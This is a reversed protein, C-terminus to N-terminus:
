IKISGRGVRSKVFSGSGEAFVNGRGDEICGKTEIWRGKEKVISARCLVVAPTTIVKKYKVKMEATASTNEHLFSILVGMVQDLLTAIVGGHLRQKGGDLGSGLSVLILSEPDGPGDSTATNRQRDADANGDGSGTGETVTDGATRRGKGPRYMSLYARVVEDAFLTQTFFNNSVDQEAPAPTRKKTKTISPDSLLERCWDPGTFDEFHEIQLPSSCLASM